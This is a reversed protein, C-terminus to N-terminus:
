EYRITVDARGCIPCSNEEESVNFDRKCQPCFLIKNKSTQM